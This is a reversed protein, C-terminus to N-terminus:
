KCKFSEFVVEIVEDLSLNNAEQNIRDFQKTSIEKQIETLREQIEEVELSSTSEMEEYLKTAVLFFLVSQELDGKAQALRGFHHLSIGIGYKDGLEKNMQLSEIYCKTAEEYDGQKEAVEGLNHLSNAIGRKNGTERYIKLSQTYLQKADEYAEQNFAIRGLNNLSTAIGFKDGLNQRIQLSATHLQSAEDYARQHRAIEGLNNLIIGIGPKDGLERLIQLSETYLQKASEYAGQNFTILGLNNLSIAIGKKNGFERYIQLSDTHLQKAEEYDGQHWAILGLTDLSVALSLKNELEKSLQLSEHFIQKAQEYDGQLRAIRGLNNLSSATSVKDELERQLPLSENLLNEAIEYDGKSTYLVGLGYLVKALLVNDQLNRLAKEAQRLRQIGESWLSRINFFYSLAISLEGLLRKEGQKQAFDMTARFNDLELSMLSLALSQEAGQCKQNNDQAVTLYYLAHAKKLEVDMGLKEQAYERLPALLWYRSQEMVEEFALLSKDQLSLLTGLVDFADYIKETAALFFGSSFVSLQCFLRKEEPNLLEYSWDIAARLTRHREPIDQRTSAFLDLQKSLGKLIEKVTMGRVRAATLEISLPIGELRRSIASIDAANQTTLEFDPKVANARQLFLRVSEYQSLTEIDADEPPVSLREV